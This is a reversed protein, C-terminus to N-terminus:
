SRWFEPNFLAILALAELRGLIMAAALIAKASDPVGSYAIPYEGAVHALPGTTSLAAVALVMATEFQVGTLALAGMVLTISIAFLMFFVWAIHAGQKRM